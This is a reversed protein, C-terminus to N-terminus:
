GRDAMKKNALAVLAMHEPDFHTSSIYAMMGCKPCNICWNYEDQVCEQREVEFVTRCGMCTHRATSEPSITSIIRMTKEGTDAFEDLPNM